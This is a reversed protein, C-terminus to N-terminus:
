AIAYAMKKTKKGNTEVTVEEKRAFGNEVLVRLRYAVKAASMPEGEEDVIQVAIDAITQLEDTLVQKVVESLADGEARKEARKAKAKETKKQIAAIEKDCFAKVEDNAEKFGKIMEYIEVKTMKKEMTKENGKM